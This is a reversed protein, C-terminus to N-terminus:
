ERGYIVRIAPNTKNNKKKKWVFYRFLPLPFQHFLTWTLNQLFLRAPNETWPSVLFEFIFFSSARETFHHITVRASLPERDSMKARKRRGSVIRNPESNCNRPYKIRVSCLCAPCDRTIRWVSKDHKLSSKFLRAFLIYQNNSDNIITWSDTDIYIITWTIIGRDYWM